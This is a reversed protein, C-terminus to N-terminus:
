EVSDTGLEKLKRWVDEYPQTQLVPILGVENIGVNYKCVLSATMKYVREIDDRVSLSEDPVYELSLVGDYGYKRFSGFLADFDVLGKGHPVNAYYRGDSGPNRYASPDECVAMDKIHTHIVYEHLGEYYQVPDEGAVIMNASDYVLKLGPVAELMHRVDAQACIGAFLDPDDEIMCSIGKDAAAQTINRFRRELAQVIASTDASGNSSGPVLMLHPCDFFVAADIARIYPAQVEEDRGSPDALEGICIISNLKLNKDNLIKRVRDPGMAEITGAIMDVGSFGTEAAIRLLEEIRISKEESWPGDMLPQIECMFTM